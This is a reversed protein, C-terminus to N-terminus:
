PTHTCAHAHTLTRTVSQTLARTQSIFHIHHQTVSRAHGHLLTHTHTRRHVHTVGCCGGRCAEDSWMGSVHITLSPTVSLTRTRKNVHFAGHYGCSDVSVHRVM